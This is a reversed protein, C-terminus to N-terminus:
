GIGSVDPTGCPELRPRACNMEYVSHVVSIKEIGCTQRRCVTRCDSHLIQSEQMLADIRM